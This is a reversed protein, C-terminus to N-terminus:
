VACLEREQASEVGVLDPTIGPVWATGARRQWHPVSAMSQKSRSKLQSLGGQLGDRVDDVVDALRKPDEQERMMRGRLISLTFLAQIEERFM